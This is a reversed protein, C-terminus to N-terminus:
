NGNDNGKEASESLTWQERKLQPLKGVDVSEVFYEVTVVTARDVGASLTFSRTKPPLGLAEIVKQMQHAM